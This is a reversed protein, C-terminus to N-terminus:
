GFNFVMECFFFLFLPSPLLILQVFFQLVFNCKLRLEELNVLRLLLHTLSEQHTGKEM